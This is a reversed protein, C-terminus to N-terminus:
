SIVDPGREVQLLQVTEGSCLFHVHLYFNHMGEPQDGGTETVFTVRWQRGHAEGIRQIGVIEGSQLVASEASPNERVWQDRLGVALDCARAVEASHHSPASHCASTGLLLLATLLTTRVSRLTAGAGM